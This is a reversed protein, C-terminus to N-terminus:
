LETNLELYSSITALKDPLRPFNGLECWPFNPSHFDSGASALFDYRRCLDVLLGTEGQKQGGVSVEIGKGGAQKFDDFLRRLKSLTFNYKRPHAIVPVGGSRNIWECLEAVSPWGAKVDGIKGAGLYGSFAEKVSAVYGMAVMKKAFHPRAPIALGSFEEIGSLLDIMHHKKALREAIIEARQRRVADQHGVAAIM